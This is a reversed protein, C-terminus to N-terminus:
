SVKLGSAKDTGYGVIAVGHDLAAPAADCRAAPINLVGGAYFMFAQADSNIGAPIVGGTFLAQLLAGEDGATVNVYGSINTQM